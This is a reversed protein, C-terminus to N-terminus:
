CSTTILFQLALAAPQARRCIPQARRESADPASPSLCLAAHLAPANQRTSVQTLWEKVEQVKKPHVALQESSTPACSDTWLDHLLDSEARTDDHTAIGDDDSDNTFRVTSDAEPPSSGIFLQLGTTAEAAARPGSTHHSRSRKALKSPGSDERDSDSIEITQDTSSKGKSKSRTSKVAPRAAKPACVGNAAVPRGGFVDKISLQKSKGAPSSRAATDEIEPDSTDSDSVLTNYRRKRSM